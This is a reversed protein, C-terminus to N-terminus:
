QGCLSEYHSRESDTLEIRKETNDPQIEYVTFANIATLEAITRSRQHRYGDVYSKILEVRAENAEELSDYYKITTTGQMPIYKEIRYKM